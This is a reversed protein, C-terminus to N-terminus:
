IPTRGRGEAKIPRNKDPRASTDVDVPTANEDRQEGTPRPVQRDHLRVDNPQTASVLTETEQGARLVTITDDLRIQDLPVFLVVANRQVRAQVVPPCVHAYSVGDPGAEEFEGLCTNCRFRM